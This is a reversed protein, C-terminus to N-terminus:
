AIRGLRGRLGHWVGRLFFRIKRLKDSEGFIIKFFDKTSFKALKLCFVPFASFYRRAIWVKNRQQYYHRAPSYNATQYNLLGFLKRRRPEGPAHLLVANACEDIVYGARRLRLSFEYDVGDIFLEDIFMGLEAFLAVPLMSGSTM